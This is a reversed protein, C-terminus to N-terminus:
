ITSWCPLGGGSARAELSAVVWIFGGILFFAAPALLMLREASVLRGRVLPLVTLGFLKGSGFLERVFAVAILVVRTASATAWATSSRRSGPQEAHRLGRRPGDRHLEHHHARRLRLAAQERRIRVSQPGSGDRHRAVRHHDASRHHSHQGSMVFATEMKTTVALASCLGLVQLSIPNNNFLPDIMAEREVNAM